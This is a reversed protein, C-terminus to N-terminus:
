KESVEPANKAPLGTEYMFSDHQIAVVLGCGLGISGDGLKWCERKTVIFSM